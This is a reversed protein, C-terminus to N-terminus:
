CSHETILQMGHEKSSRVIECYIECDYIYAGSKKEGSLSRPSSQSSQSCGQPSLLVFIGRCCNYFIHACVCVCVCVLPFSFRCTVPGVYVCSEHDLTGSLNNSHPVADQGFEPAGGPHWAAWLLRRWLPWVRLCFNALCQLFGGSKSSYGSSYYM